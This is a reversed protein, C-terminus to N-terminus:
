LNGAAKISNIISELWKKNEAIKKSSVEVADIAWKSSKITSVAKMPNLGKVDNQVDKIQAAATAADASAQVLIPLIAAYDDKKAKYKTIDIEGDGSELVETKYEQLVANSAVVVGLLGSGADVLGDVSNLGTTQPKNIIRAPEKGALREIAPFASEQLAVPIATALTAKIFDSMTGGVPALENLKKEIKEADKSNAKLESKLQEREAKIEEKTKIEQANVLLIMGLFLSM